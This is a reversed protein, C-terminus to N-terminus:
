ILRMRIVARTTKLPEQSLQHLQVADTSSLLDSRMNVNAFTKQYKWCLGCFERSVNSQGIRSMHLKIIGKRGSQVGLTTPTYNM